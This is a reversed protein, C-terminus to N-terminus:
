EAVPALAYLYSKEGLLQFLHYSKNSEKETIQTLSKWSLKPLSTAYPLVKTIVKRSTDLPTITLSSGQPLVQAADAIQSDDPTEKMVAEALFIIGDETMRITHTETEDYKEFQIVWYYSTYTQFTTDVTKYSFARWNYWNAYKSSLDVPYQKLHYLEKIKKKALVVAEYDTQAIEYDHATKVESEWQGTILQLHEYSTLNASADRAMAASSALYKQEVPKVKNYEQRKQFSLINEPLIMGGLVIIMVGAFIFINKGSNHKKM